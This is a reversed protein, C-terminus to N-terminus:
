HFTAANFFEGRKSEIKVKCPGDWFEDKWEGERWRKHDRYRDNDDAIVVNNLALISALFITFVQIKM